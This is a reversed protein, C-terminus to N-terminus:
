GIRLTASPELTFCLQQRRQIMGVDAGDVADVFAANGGARPPFQAREDQFQHLSLREGFADCAHGRRVPCRAAKRGGIDDGDGSLQDVRELRRVVTADHM